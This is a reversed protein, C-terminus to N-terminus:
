QCVAMTLYEWVGGQSVGVSDWVGSATELRGRSQVLPGLAPLSTLATVLTRFEATTEILASVSVYVSVYVSVPFVPQIGVPRTRHM